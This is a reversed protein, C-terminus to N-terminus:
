GMGFGSRVSPAASLGPNIARSSLLPKAVSGAGPAAFNLAIPLAVQGVKKMGGWLKGWFGKKKEPETPMGYEYSQSGGGGSPAASVMGQLGALKGQQIMEAIAAEANTSVDAASQGQERAMRSLLVNHGPSYGGQLARQREVNRMANAYTARVPSVARARINALDAPSFGGTQSFEKFGAYAEPAGPDGSSYSEHTLRREPQVPAAPQEQKKSM